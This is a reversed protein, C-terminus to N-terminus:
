ILVLGFTAQLVFCSFCCGLFTIWLTCHLWIILLFSFCCVLDFPLSFGHFILPFVLALGFPFWPIRSRISYGVLLWSPWHNLSCKTLWSTTAADGDVCWLVRFVAVWGFFVSGISRGECGEIGPFFANSCCNYFLCGSLWMLAAWSGVGSCWVGFELGRIGFEVGVWDWDRALVGLM